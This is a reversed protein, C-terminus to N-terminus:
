AAARTHRVSPDSVDARKGDTRLKRGALAVVDIIEDLLEQLATLKPQSIPTEHLRYTAGQVCTDESGDENRGHIRKRRVVHSM